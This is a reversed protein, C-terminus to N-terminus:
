CGGRFFLFAVAALLVFIIIWSMRFETFFPITGQFQM